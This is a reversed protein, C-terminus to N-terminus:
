FSYDTKTFIRHSSLTVIINNTYKSPDRSLEFLYELDCIFADLVRGFHPDNKDYFLQKIAEVCFDNFNKDEEQDECYFSLLERGTKVLRIIFRKLGSFFVRYINNLDLNLNFPIFRVIM